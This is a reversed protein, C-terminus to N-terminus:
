PRAPHVAARAARASTCGAFALNDQALLVDFYAQAVRLILDQAALALQADAQEVQTLAQAYVVESQPRYLPQTVSLSLGTSAFGANTRPLTADRFRLSRDNYQASASLSAAPLLGARGQPIREQAAAWAARAGAYTADARQALRFIDVLDAGRASATCALVFVCLVTRRM